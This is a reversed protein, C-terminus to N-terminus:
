ISVAGTGAPSCHVTRSLVSQAGDNVNNVGTGVQLRVFTVTGTRLTLFFSITECFRPAVEDRSRERSYFEIFWANM